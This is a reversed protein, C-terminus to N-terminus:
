IDGIHRKLVSDSIQVKDNLSKLVLEDITGPAVLDIRTISAHRESGGRYNRAESQIDYELNFTRSYYIMTSAEVLNIGIGGSGPHGILVRVKEDTRFRDAARDKDKILGHIEVYEIKLKECVDRIDSYNAHYVAWVIIKESPALDELLEKLADLRPNEKITVTSGQGDETEVRLHGSCIQQLRLAKTIALEAISHKDEGGSKITAILDRKMETYLRAQEKSMEVEITKKVLPPLSLCTKKDVKVSIPDMLRGLEEAAHPLPVFEPFHKSSPMFRNKDIFYKARFSFFNKGFREGGDLARFQTYVDMLSNLIPTGTLIYKYKAVDALEIAAKSRKSNPTKIKHSEDLVLCSNPQSLIEKLGAFVEPMLLSEYNTIFIGKGGANKIQEVRKKGAGVLPTLIDPSVKSWILFERVWNSVVVPPSLVVVPLNKKHRNFKGRLITILTASKGTGPQALLAFYDLDKAKEVALKQHEWLEPIKKDM